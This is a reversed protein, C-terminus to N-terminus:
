KGACEQLTSHAQVATRLRKERIMMAFSGAAAPGLVFAALSIWFLSMGKSTRENGSGAERLLHHTFVVCAAATIWWDLQTFLHAGEVLATQSGHPSSFVRSASPVFVRTWSLGTDGASALLLAGTYLHQAATLTGTACLSAVVWPADENPSRDDKPSEFRTVSTGPRSCVVICLVMYIPTLNYMAIFGHRDYDSGGDVFFVLPFLANVVLTVPFARAENLPVTADRSTHRSRAILYFYIPTVFAAGLSNWLFIFLITSDDIEAPQENCLVGSTDVISDIVSKSDCSFTGFM